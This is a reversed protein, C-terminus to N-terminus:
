SSRWQPLSGISGWFFVPQLPPHFCSILFVGRFIFIKFRFWSFGDVQMVTPEMNITYNVSWYFRKPQGVDVMSTVPSFMVNGCWWCTNHKCRLITFKHGWRCDKKCGFLQRKINGVSTKRGCWPAGFRSSSKIIQAYTLCYSLHWFYLRFIEALFWVTGVATSFFLM